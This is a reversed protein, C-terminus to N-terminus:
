ASSPMRSLLGDRPSPSTYLLCDQGGAKSVDGGAAEVEASVRFVQLFKLTFFMLFSLAFVWLLQALTGIAWAGLPEGHGAILGGDRGLTEQAYSDDSFIAAALMSPSQYSAGCWRVRTTGGSLWLIGSKARSVRPFRWTGGRTRQLKKCLICTAKAVQEM